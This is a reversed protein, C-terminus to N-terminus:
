GGELILYKRRGIETIRNVLVTTASVDNEFDSDNVSSAGWRVRRLQPNNIEALIPHWRVVIGDLVRYTLETRTTVSTTGENVCAAWLTLVHCAGPQHHFDVKWGPERYSVKLVEDLRPVDREQM